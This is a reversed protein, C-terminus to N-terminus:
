VYHFSHFSHILLRTDAEEQTCFLGSMIAILPSVANPGYTSVVQKQAPPEFEQIAGILLKFFNDKYVDCRLFNKWNTPIKTTNDVRNHNSSGHDQSTQTKLSNKYIDWVVNVCVFYQLMHKIYPLFILQSYDRFTMIPISSKHPDLMHVLAAGDIIRIDVKPISEPHSVFPELCEM